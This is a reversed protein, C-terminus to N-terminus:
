HCCQCSVGVRQTPSDPTILDSFETEIDILERMLVDYEKDTISPDDLVYYQYNHKNILQRLAEVEQRAQELQM